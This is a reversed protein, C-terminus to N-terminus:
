LGQLLRGFYNFPNHYNQRSQEADYYIQKDLEDVMRDRQDNTFKQNRVSEIVGITEEAIKNRLARSQLIESTRYQADKELLSKRALRLDSETVGQEKFLAAASHAQQTRAASERMKQMWDQYFIENQKHLLDREEGKAQSAIDDLKGKMRSAVELAKNLDGQTAYVQALAGDTIAEQRLKAATASAIEMGFAKQISNGLELQDGQGELLKRMADRTTDVTRTDAQYKKAESFKLYSDAIGLVTPFPLAEMHPSSLTPMSPTVGSGHPSAMAGSNSQGTAIASQGSMMVAPNLGAERYQKVLELPSNLRHQLMMLEQDHSRAAAAQDAAFRNNLDNLERQMQNNANAIDVSTANNKEAIELNSDNALQTSIPSFIDQCRINVYNHFLSKYRM